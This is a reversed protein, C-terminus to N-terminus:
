IYSILTCYQINYAHLKQQTLDFRKYLIYMIIVTASSDKDKITQNFTAIKENLM